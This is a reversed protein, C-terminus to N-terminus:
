VLYGLGRKTQIYDGLGITQLSKRLRNVNVTLTNDDIFEDSQWLENQLDTRTVIQGQRSLLFRLIRLENRTLDVSKGEYSAQGKAIDLRLGNHSFLAGPEVNTRRLLAAIRALLIQANYPKTVFDDAGLNMSVLEDLSSDRSTVVIIPVSSTSRIQKCIVHGDVQPLNLDLLVLDPSAASVEDPVAAFDNAHEVAYGNRQLLIGLERDIQNDDEVIFITQV